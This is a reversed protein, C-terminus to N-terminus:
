YAKSHLIGRSFSERLVDPISTQRYQRASLAVHVRAREGLAYRRWYQISFLYAVVFAFLAILTAARELGQPFLALMTQWEGMHEFIDMTCVAPMGMFPCPEMGNDVSMGIHGVSTFIAFAFLVVALGALIMKVNRRRM